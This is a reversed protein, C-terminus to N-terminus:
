VSQGNITTHKGAAYYSSIPAYSSGDRDITASAQVPATPSYLMPSWMEYDQLPGVEQTASPQLPDEDGLHWMLKTIGNWVGSGDFQQVQTSITQSAGTGSILHSTYTQCSPLYWLQFDGVVKGNVDKVQQDEMLMRKDNFCYGSGEDRSLISFHPGFPLIGNCNEPSPHALCPRSDFPQDYGNGQAQSISLLTGRLVHSSQMPTAHALFAAAVLIPLLLGLPLLYLTRRRTM